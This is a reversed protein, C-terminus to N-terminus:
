SLMAIRDRACRHRTMPGRRVHTSSARRQHGAVTRYGKFLYFAEERSGPNTARSLPPLTEGNSAAEEQQRGTAM